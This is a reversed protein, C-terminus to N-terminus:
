ENNCVEGKVRQIFQDIEFDINQIKELYGLAMKKEGFNYLICGLNYIIDINESNIKYAKQLFPIVCDYINNEYFKIGLLNLLKEKEIINLMINEIIEEYDLEKNTFKNLITNISEEVEIDNEIRRLLFKLNREKNKRPIIIALNIEEILSIIKETKNSIKELYFLSLEYEGINYLVLGLNTLVDENNNDYDFASQLFPIVCDYIENEYCKTAIINLIEVKNNIEKDVINLLSDKQKPNKKLNKLISIINEEMNIENDINLLYEKM